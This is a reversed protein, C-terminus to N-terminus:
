WSNVKVKKRSLGFIYGKKKSRNRRVFDSLDYKTPPPFGETDKMFDFKTGIGIHAKRTM